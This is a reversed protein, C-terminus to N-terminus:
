ASHGEESGIIKMIFVEYKRSFTFQNRKKFLSVFTCAIDKAAFIFPTLPFDAVM